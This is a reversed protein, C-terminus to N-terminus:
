RQVPMMVGYCRDGIEMEAESESLRVVQGGVEEEVFLWQKSFCESSKGMMSGIRMRLGAHFLIRSVCFSRIPYEM